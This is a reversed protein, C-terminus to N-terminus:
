RPHGPSPTARPPEGLADLIQRARLVDSKPVLVQGWFGVAMAFVGDFGPVQASRVRAAIGASRLLAQLHIASDEDAADHVPWLDLWELAGDGPGAPLGKESHLHGYEGGNGDETGAGGTGNRDTVDVGLSSPTRPAAM